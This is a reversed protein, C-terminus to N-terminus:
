LEERVPDLEQTVALAPTGLAGGREPQVIGSSMLAKFAEEVTMDLVEVDHEPFMVFFGSTPNPTTPVFVSILPTGVATEVGPWARATVFGLCYVGRRPFEVLVVKEFSQARDSFVQELLQRVAFYVTGLLPVERLTAEVWAVVKRGVFGRAMSGILLVFLLTLVFGLGPTELWRIQAPAWPPTWTLERISQPVLGLVGDVELVIRNFIWFVIALPAVVIIGAVLSDRVRTRFSKKEPAPEVAPIGTLSSM